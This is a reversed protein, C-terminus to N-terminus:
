LLPLRHVVVSWVVWTTTAVPEVQLLPSSTSAAVFSWFGCSLRAEMSSAVISAVTALIWAVSSFIVFVHAN